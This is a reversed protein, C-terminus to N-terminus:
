NPPMWCSHYSRHRQEAAVAQKASFGGLLKVLHMQATTVKLDSSEASGILVAAGALEERM